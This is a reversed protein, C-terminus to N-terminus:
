LQKLYSILIHHAIIGDYFYHYPVVCTHKTTTLLRGIIYLQRHQMMSSPAMWCLPTCLGTIEPRWEQLCKASLLRMQMRCDDDVVCVDGTLFMGDHCLVGDKEM